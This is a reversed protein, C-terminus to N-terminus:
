GRRWLRFRGIIGGSDLSRLRARMAKRCKKVIASSCNKEMFRYLADARLQPAGREDFHLNGLIAAVIFAENLALAGREARCRDHLYRGLCKRLDSLLPDGRGTLTKFLAVGEHLAERQEGLLLSIVRCADLANCVGEVSRLAPSECLSPEVESVRAIMARDAPNNLDVEAWRIGDLLIVLLNELTRAPVELWDGHVGSLLGDIIESLAWLFESHACTMEGATIVRSELQAWNAVSRNLAHDDIGSRRSELEAIWDSFYQRLSMGREFPPMELSVGPAPLTRNVRGSAQQMWNFDRAMVAAALEVDLGDPEIDVGDPARWTLDPFRFVSAFHAINEVLQANGSLVMVPYRRDLAAIRLASVYGLARADSAPLIRLLMEMLSRGRESAAQADDGLQIVVYFSPDIASRRLAAILAALMAEDGEFLGELARVGEIVAGPEALTLAELAPLPKEWDGGPIYRTVFATQDLPRESMLWEIDAPEDFLLQHVTLVDGDLSARALAIGRESQAQAYLPVGPDPSIAEAYRALQDAWFGERVDASGLAIVGDAARRYLHQKVM